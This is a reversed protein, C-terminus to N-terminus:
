NNKEIWKNLEEEQREYYGDYSKRITQECTKPRLFRDEKQHYIILDEELEPLTKNKMQWHVLFVDQFSDQTPEIVVGVDNELDTSRANYWFKKVLDGVRM